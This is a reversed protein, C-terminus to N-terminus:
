ILFYISKPVSKRLQTKKRPEINLNLHSYFNSVTNLPKLTSKSLISDPKKNGTSKM